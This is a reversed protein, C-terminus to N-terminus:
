GPGRVTEKNSILVSRVRACGIGGPATWVLLLRGATAGAVFAGTTGQPHFGNLFLQTTAANGVRTGVEYGAVVATLLDRGTLGPSGAAFGLAIPM